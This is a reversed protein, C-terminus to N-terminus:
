PLRRHAPARAGTGTPYAPAIAVQLAPDNHAGLVSSLAGGAQELWLELPQPDDAAHPATAHRRFAGGDWVFLEIGDGQAASAGAVVRVRARSVSAGGAGVDDLALHVVHGPFTPEM